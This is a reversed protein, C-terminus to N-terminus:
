HRARIGVANAYWGACLWIEPVGLTSGAGGVSSYVGVYNMGNKQSRAGVRWSAGWGAGMVLGAGVRCVACGVASTSMGSARSSVGVAGWIGLPVSKKIGLPDTGKKLVSYEHETM